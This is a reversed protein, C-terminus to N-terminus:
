APFSTIEDSTFLAEMKQAQNQIDSYLKNIESVKMGQCLEEAFEDISMDQCYYDGQLCCLFSYLFTKYFEKRKREILPYKIDYNIKIGYKSSLNIIYNFNSLLQNYNVELYFSDYSSITFKFDERKNNRIISINYIYRNNDDTGVLKILFECSKITDQLTTFDETYEEMMDLMNDTVDLKFQKGLTIMDKRKM